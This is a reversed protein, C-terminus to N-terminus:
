FLKGYRNTRGSEIFELSHSAGAKAGQTVRDFGAASTGTIGPLFGYLSLSLSGPTRAYRGPRWALQRALEEVAELDLRLTPSYCGTTGSPERIYRSSAPLWWKSESSRLALGVLMLGFGIWRVRRQVGPDVWPDSDPDIGLV